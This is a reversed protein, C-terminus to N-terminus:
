GSSGGSCGTPLRVRDGPRDLHLSDSTRYATPDFRVFCRGPLEEAIFRRMLAYQRSEAIRPHVPLEVFVPTVGQAELRLGTPRHKDVPLTLTLLQKAQDGTRACRARRRVSGMWRIGDVICAGRQRTAWQM